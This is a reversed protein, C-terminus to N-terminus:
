SPSVRQPRCRGWTPPGEGKGEKPPRLMMGQVGDQELKTFTKALIEAVEEDGLREFEGVQAESDGTQRLLEIM